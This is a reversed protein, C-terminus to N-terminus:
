SADRCNKTPETKDIKLESNLNENLGGLMDMARMFSAQWSIDYLHRFLTNAEKKSDSYAHRGDLPIAGYFKDFLQKKSELNNAKYKKNLPRNQQFKLNLQAYFLSDRVVDDIRAMSRPLKRPGPMRITELTEMYPYALNDRSRNKRWEKVLGLAKSDKVVECLRESLVRWMRGRRQDAHVILSDLYSNLEDLANQAGFLLHSGFNGSPLHHTGELWKSTILLRLLWDRSLAAIPPASYLENINILDVRSDIDRGLLLKETGIGAIELFLAYFYSYGKVSAALLDCAIERSLDRVDIDNRPLRGFNKFNTLTSQIRAILDSFEDTDVALSIGELNDFREQILAHAVEHAIVPQLDPREPMYYSTNVFRMSAPVTDEKNTNSSQSAFGIDLSETTSTFHHRWRHYIIKTKRYKKTAGLHDLLLRMDRLIDRSRDSLYDMYIGLERRREISPRLHDQVGADMSKNFANQFNRLLFIYQALNKLVGARLILLKSKNQREFNTKSKRHIKQQIAFQCLILKDKFIQRKLQQLGWLSHYHRRQDRNWVSSSWISGLTKKLKDETEEGSESQDIDSVAPFDVWKSLVKEISAVNGPQMGNCGFWDAGWLFKEELSLVLYLDPERLHSLISIQLHRIELILTDLRELADNWSLLYLLDSGHLKFKTHEEQEKKTM